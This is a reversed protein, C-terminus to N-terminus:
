QKDNRSRMDLLNYISKDFENGYQMNIYQSEMIKLDGKALSYLRGIEEQLFQNMKQSLIGTNANNDMYTIWREFLKQTAIWLNSGLWNKAKQKEVEERFKEYYKM